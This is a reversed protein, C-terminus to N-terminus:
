RNYALLSAVCINNVSMIYISHGDDLIFNMGAYFGIFGMWLIVYRLGGCM